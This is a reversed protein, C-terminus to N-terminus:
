SIGAIPIKRLIWMIFKYLMIGADITIVIGFLMTIYVFPTYNALIGGGASIYRFADSIYTHVDPPLNPLNIPLTLFSFITFIFNFLLNVVM